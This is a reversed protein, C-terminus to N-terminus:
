AKSRLPHSGPASCSCRTTAACSIPGCSPPIKPSSNAAIGPTEDLLGLGIDGFAIEGRPTLFDRSLGVRFSEGMPRMRMPFSPGSLRSSRRRRPGAAPAKRAGGANRTV